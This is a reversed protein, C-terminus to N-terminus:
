NKVVKRFTKKDYTALEYEKSFSLAKKPCNEVCNGCHICQSEDKEYVISFNNDEENKIKEIKILDVCPCVKQCVGCGVCLLKGNEDKNHVIQGRFNDSVIRRDEPYELTVRKEFAYKLVTIHAKIISILGKIFNSFM